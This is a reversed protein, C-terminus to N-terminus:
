DQIWVSQYNLKMIAPDFPAQFFGQYQGRPNILAISSSHDVNYSEPATAPDIITFAINLQAALNATTLLDGRVGIFDDSFYPVYLALQENTDRNPDVSFLMVQLDNRPKPDLYDWMKALISMTTPCIDPCQTFGPFVMTWKGKFDELTVTEGHHNTMEFPLIERPTEFFVFGNAAMEQPRLARPQSIKWVFGTVMLAILCLVIIVTRRIGKQVDDTMDLGTDNEIDIGSSV